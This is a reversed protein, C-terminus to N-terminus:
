LVGIAEDLSQFATAVQINQADALYLSAFESFTLYANKQKDGTVFWLLEGKVLLSMAAYHYNVASTDYRVTFKVVAGHGLKELGNIKNYQEELEDLEALQRMLSVRRSKIAKNTINAM